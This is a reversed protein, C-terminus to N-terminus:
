GVNGEEEQVPAQSESQPTPATQSTAAETTPPETQTVTEAPKTQEQKTSQSEKSEEQKGFNVAVEEDSTTVPQGSADYQTESQQQARSRYDAQVDGSWQQRGGSLLGGQQQLTTGDPVFPNLTADIAPRLTAQATVEAINIINPDQLMASKVADSVAYYPTAAEQVGPEVYKTLYLRAGSGSHLYYDVLASQYTHRDAETLYMKVTRENIQQIRKHTLVIYEQGMPLTLVLDVYDGKRMGVVWSNVSIDIDRLTADYDEAMVMDTTIPTGPTINVKFYQGAIDSINTIYSSGVLSQPVSVPMLSEETITIGALKNNNTNCFDETVTYCQVDPGLADLRSTLESIELTFKSTIAQTRKWYMFGWIGSVIVSTILIPLIIKLRHM